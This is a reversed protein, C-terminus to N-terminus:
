TGGKEETLLQSIRSLLSSVDYPKGMVYCPGDTDYPLAEWHGEVAMGTLLIVPINRTSANARLAQYTEIGDQEPMLMDLIILDPRNETASKLGEAGSTFATVEYSEANLRTSLAQLFEPQDDILLLKRAPTGM